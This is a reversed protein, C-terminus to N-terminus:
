LGLELKLIEKIKDGADKKTKAFARSMFPNSAQGSRGLEAFTYYFHKKDPRVEVYKVGAKTKVGSVEISKAMEGTLKPAEAEMEAAIIDGGAKLATKTIQNAVKTSMETLKNLLADMGTLQIEAM